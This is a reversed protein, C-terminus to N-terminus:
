VRERCSARGITRLEEVKYAVGVPEAIVLDPHGTTLVRQCTPCTGCGGHECLIMAAFAVAANDKNTGAPGLFLYAHVPAGAAAVLEAVAREQGPADAFLDVRTTM